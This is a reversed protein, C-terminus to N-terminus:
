RYHILQHMRSLQIVSLLYHQTHYVAKLSYKWGQPHPPQSSRHSRLSFTKANESQHARTRLSLFVEKKGPVGTQYGSAYKLRQCSLCSNKYALKVSNRFFYAPEAYKPRDVCFSVRRIESVFTPTMLHVTSLVGSFHLSRGVLTSKSITPTGQNECNQKVIGRLFYALVLFLNNESKNILVLTGGFCLAREGRFCCRMSLLPQNPQAFVALGNSVVRVCLKTVPLSVNAM